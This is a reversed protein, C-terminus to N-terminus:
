QEAPRAHSVYFVVPASAGGARARGWYMGPAFDTTDAEVRVEALDAGPGIRAPSVRLQAAPLTSASPDVHVLDDITVAASNAPRPMLVTAYERTPLTAVAVADEHERTAPVQADAYNDLMASGAKFATAWDRALRLFLRTTDPGVDKALDYEGGSVRNAIDVAYSTYFKTADSVGAVWADVFGLSFGDTTGAGPSATDDGIAGGPVAGVSQARAKQMENRIGERMWGAWAPRVMTALVNDVPDTFGVVKLAKVLRTDGLDVALLFGRDVDIVDGVSHDLDYTMGVWDTTRKFDCGLVTHLLHGGLSVVEMYTGHWQEGSSSPAEIVTRKGVPDMRKFMVGGWVPWNDPTLWETLVDMGAPTMLEAFIWVAQKGEVSVPEVASMEAVGIGGLEEEVVTQANPRGDDGNRLRAAYREYADWLRDTDPLSGNNGRALEALASRRAAVSITDADDRSLRELADELSLRAFGARGAQDEVGNAIAHISLLADEPTPGAATGGVAGHDSM